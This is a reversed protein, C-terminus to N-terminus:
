VSDLIQGIIENAVSVLADGVPGIAGTVQGREVKQIFGEMRSIAGETNGNNLRNIATDLRRTLKEETEADFAEAIVASKLDGIAVIPDGGSVPALVFTVVVTGGGCPNENLVDNCDVTFRANATDDDNNTTLHSESSAVLNGDITIAEIQRPVPGELDKLEFAGQLPLLTFVCSDTGCDISEGERLVAGINTSADGGVIEVGPGIEVQDIFPGDHLAAIVTITDGAFNARAIQSQVGVVALFGLATLGIGFLKTNKKM